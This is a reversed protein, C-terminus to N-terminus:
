FLDDLDNSPDHDSLDFDATWGAEQQQRMDEEDQAHTTENFYLHDVLGSSMTYLFVQKM